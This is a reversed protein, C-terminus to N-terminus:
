SNSIAVLSGIAVYLALLAVVVMAIWGGVTSPLFGRSEGRHRTLVFYLAAILAAVVAAIVVLGM